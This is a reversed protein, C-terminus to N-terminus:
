RVAKVNSMALEFRNPESYPDSHKGFAKECLM